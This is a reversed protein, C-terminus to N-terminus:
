RARRRVLQGMAFLNFRFLMRVAAVWSVTSRGETRARQEVEVSGVRLGELCATVFLEPEPFREYRTKSLVQMARRGMAFFGSNVDSPAAGRTLLRALFSMYGKVVRRAPTTAGENNITRVAVAIDSGGGGLDALLRPIDRVEHQEDADVRVLVAYDHAIAHAMALNLSVGLGFNAPLRVLLCRGGPPRNLPLPSGDDVILTWFQPGLAAIAAHLRPLGAADGFSPIFVLVREQNATPQSV